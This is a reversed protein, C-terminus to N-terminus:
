VVIYITSTHRHSEQGHGLRLPTEPDLFTSHVCMALAFRSGFVPTQLSGGAPDPASGRTLPWPTV